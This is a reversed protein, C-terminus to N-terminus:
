RALDDESPNLAQYDLIKYILEQKLLKDPKPIELKKAIERLETVLKGNLEIIDYM